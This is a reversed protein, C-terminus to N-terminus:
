VRRGIDDLGNQAAQTFFDEIQQISAEAGEKLFPRGTMFRTGEHVFIGYYAEPGVEAQMGMGFGSVNFTHSSRLRGTLVPTRIMSQSKILVASKTLAKRFNDRMIRPAASFAARIQPVNKIQVRVNLM